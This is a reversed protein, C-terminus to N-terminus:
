TKRRRFASIKVALKIIFFLLFYFRTTLGNGLFEFKRKESM